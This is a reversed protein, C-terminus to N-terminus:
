KGKPTPILAILTTIGGIALGTKTHAATVGREARREGFRYIGREAAAIGVVTALAGAVGVGSLAARRAPTLSLWFASFSNETSGTGGEDRSGEAPHPADNEDRPGGILEGPAQAAPQVLLDSDELAGQKADRYELVALGTIGLTIATKLVGRAAKSPIFDPTAYYAATLLGQGTSLIARKGFAKSQSTM